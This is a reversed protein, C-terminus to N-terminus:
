VNRQVARCPDLQLYPGTALSLVSLSSKCPRPSVTWARACCSPELLRGGLIGSREERGIVSRVPEGGIGRGVVCLAYVFRRRM